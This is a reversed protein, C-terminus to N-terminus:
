STSSLKTSISVGPSNPKLSCNLASILAISFYLSMVRLYTLSACRTSYTIFEVLGILSLWLSSRFQSNRM